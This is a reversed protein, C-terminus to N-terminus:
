APTINLLWNHFYGPLLGTKERLWPLMALKILKNSANAAKHGNLQENTSSNTKLGSLTMHAKFICIKYYM